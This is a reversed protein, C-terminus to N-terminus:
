SVKAHNQKNLTNAALIAASGPHNLEGGKSPHRSAAPHNGEEGRGTSLKSSLKLLKTKQNPDDDNQKGL